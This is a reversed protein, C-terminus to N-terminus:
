NSPVQKIPVNLVYRTSRGMGKSVILNRSVLDVLELHATKHSVDHMTRYTKNKICHNKTLFILTDEQRKNLPKAEEDSFLGSETEQVVHEPKTFTLLSEEEHKDGEVMNDSLELLEETISEIKESDDTFMVQEQMVAEKESEDCKTEDLSVTESDDVIVDPVSNENEMISMKSNDLNLVYCKNKFYYPKKQTTKISLVLIQKDDRSVYEILVEPVPYCYTELVKNVWGEDYETGVLHYNHVDFGLVISGGQTNAMAVVMPGLDDEDTIAPFFKIDRQDDKRTLALFEQWQMTM